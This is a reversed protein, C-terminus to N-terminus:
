QITIDKIMANADKKAGENYSDNTWVLGIKHTGATMGNLSVTGNNYQIDSGAVSTSGVKMGDVMVDFNFSYNAPMTWSADRGDAGLAAYNKVDFSLTYNGNAEFTTTLELPQGGWPNYVADEALSSDNYYWSKGDSSYGSSPFKKIGSTALFSNLQTTTGPPNVYSNSVERFLGNAADYQYVLTNQKLNTPEYINGVRKKWDKYVPYSIAEFFPGNESNNLDLTAPFRGNQAATIQIFRQVESVTNNVVAIKAEETREQYKVVGIGSLIGLVAIVVSLEILTFGKANRLFKFVQM